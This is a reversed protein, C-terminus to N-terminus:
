RSARKLSDANIKRGKLGRLAKHAHEAGATTFRRFARPRYECPGAGEIEAGGMGRKFRYVGPNGTADIGGLDYTKVGRQIARQIAHWQLRYAAKQTRGIETTAGLLYVCTDGLHSAVHGAIPEGNAWALSVEFRDAQDLMSQVRTHFTADLDVRFGKINMMASHLHSFIELMAPETGSEIRMTQRESANLCNRWKGNLDARIQDPPRQLDMVMTRYPRTQQSPVFGHTKFITSHLDNWAENGLAPMIRLLLGRDNVYHEVLTQLARDLRIAELEPDEGRRVLPGGNLYAIGGGILPISKVRVNALAIQEDNWHVAVSETSANQRDGCARSFAELQRYSLDRYTRAGASWSKEDLLILQGQYMTM